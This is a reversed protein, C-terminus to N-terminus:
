QGVGEYRYASLDILGPYHRAGVLSSGPPLERVVVKAAPPPGQRATAAPRADPVVVFLRRGRAERMAARVVRGAPLGGVGQVALEDIGVPGPLRPRPGLVFVQDREGLAGELATIPGGTIVPLDIVVDGPQGTREIFDAVSDYDPRRFDDGFVKVTGICYASLVLTVAAARLLPAAVATSVGGLALAIGPWATILNRPAFVDDGLLSYLASGVTPFLALCGILVTRPAPRFGSGVAYRRAARLALSGLAIALGSAFLVVGVTGPLSRPASLPFGIAWRFVDHAARGLEFPHIFELIGTTPSESDDIYSPLWPLFGIAAAGNAVLLPRWSERHAWLAWLAQGALAFAGSYHTYMVACSLAAYAGWWRRRGTDLATLLALTSLLVLLLVLAYARAETSYFILYPSLATLAAGVLGAPRGITKAGLLYVLPIIATGALLSPVQLWSTSDGLKATLWTVVFYLPPTIEQDTQVRDIVEGLGQGTVIWATSLDDAYLSQHDLYVLRLVLGVGTLGAAILVAPSAWSAPVTRRRTWAERVADM